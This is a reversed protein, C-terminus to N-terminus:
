IRFDFLTIGLENAKNKMITMMADLKLLDQQGLAPKSLRLVPLINMGRNKLFIKATLPYYCNDATSDLLTLLADLQTIQDDHRDMNHIIYSYFEPYYNAGTTSLGRAGARITELGTPTNANYIGLPTNMTVRIKAKIADTNCSTDKHYFFRGSEGLWQMLDNSILRKYPDPCEYIGLPIDGTAKLLDDIKAKFTEEPEWKDTLQNSNIIVAQAGVDYIRKIFENNKKLNKGFTGTSVVPIKDNIKKVVTKTILIREEDTLQYMESSLCNAFLGNAGAAIYFETLNELGKLDLEYNEKFPTLMVPWLGKPLREVIYSNKIKIIIFTDM